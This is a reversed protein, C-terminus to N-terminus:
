NHSELSWSDLAVSPPTVYDSSQMGLWQPNFLFALTYQGAPLSVSVTTVDPNPQDAEPPQPDSPYRVSPTQTTFTAGTPPNLLTLMLTQGDLKLTASAGDTTVTANTHINWDVTGQSDIEDQLLIQRRKNLFRIGRKV